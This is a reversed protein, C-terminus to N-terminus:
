RARQGSALQRWLVAGGVLVYLHYTLFRWILVVPGVLAPPAFLPLILASLLEISGGGGPVVVVLALLFLVGQLLMLPLVDPQLGFAWLVAPLVGYRCTWQVAAVAFSVAFAAKGHRWFRLTNLRFRRWGRRWALRRPAAPESRRRRRAWGAAGLLLALAILAVVVWWAPLSTERSLREDLRARSWLALVSALGLPWLLAFYLVDAAVDAALMAVTDSRRIGLRQQLGLRAALGGLGGPTAAIAFETALTVRLADRLRIQHHLVRALLWTRVGNATWATAVLALLLPAATWRFDQLHSWTEADTTLAVVLLGAVMALILGRIAWRLLLPGSLGPLGPAGDDDASTESSPSTAPSGTM